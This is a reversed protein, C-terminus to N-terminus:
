LYKVLIKILKNIRKKQVIFDLCLELSFDQVSTAGSVRRCQYLGLKLWQRSISYAHKYTHPKLFHLSSTLISVTLTVLSWSPTLQHHQSSTKNPRVWIKTRIADGQSCLVTAPGCSSHEDSWTNDYWTQEDRHVNTKIKYKESKRETTCNWVAASNKGLSEFLCHLCEM